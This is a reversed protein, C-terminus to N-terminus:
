LEGRFALQQLSTFLCEFLSTQVSVKEQIWGAASLRRQFEDQLSRPPNIIELSRIDDFNLGAKVAARNKRAIAAQGAPSALAASLFRANFHSTRLLALHQNIYAEGIDYPIVATRGLDATISL